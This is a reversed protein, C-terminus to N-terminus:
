ESEGTESTSTESLLDMLNLITSETYHHFNASLFETAIRRYQADTAEKDRYSLESATPFQYPNM